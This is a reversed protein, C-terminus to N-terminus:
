SGEEYRRREGATAHRASILRICGARWAYVVVIVRGVADVGVTIFRDEDPGEDWVTVALEDQLVIMADAFRVGHKRANTAAKRPDWGVALHVSYTRRHM